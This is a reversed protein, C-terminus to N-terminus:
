KGKDPFIKGPNLVGNPDLANKLTRMFEATEAGVAMELFDKKDLGVGHEGSITGGMEVALTLIDRVAAHAAATEKQDRKDYLVTPHLNGDGAHGVTFIHISYRKKIENIRAIAAPIASRPVVIDESLRDPRVRAVAIAFAQRAQWLAEAQESKEPILISRAGIEQCLHGIAAAHKEVTEKEGDVEILLLAEVDEPFGAHAHEEINRVSAGDMLEIKSPVMGSAIIRSVAAGAEEMSGFVAMMTKRQKPLPLLRLTMETIVCLTGESGIFLRTLDYGTVNKITKGGTRIIEGTPMVVQLGIVYDKTVGYKVGHPGGSCEAMNGGLTCMRISSPDPPYFLGRKEVEAQFQATVVGPQAVAVLNAPDIEIIKDMRSLDLLIGGEAPVCGGSNGTGAGRPTVAFGEQNALKLIASIMEASDPLVVADPQGELATADSSYCITDESSTLLGSPGAIDKLRAIVDHKSASGPRTM